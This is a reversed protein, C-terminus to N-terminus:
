SQIEPPYVSVIYFIKPDKPNYIIGVTGPVAVEYQTVLGNVSEGIIEQGDETRFQIVPSNINGGLTRLRVSNGRMEKNEIITGDARIGNRKISDIESKGKWSSYIILFIVAILLIWGM